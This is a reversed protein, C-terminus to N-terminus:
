CGVVGQGCTPNIQSTLPFVQRVSFLIRSQLAGKFSSLRDILGTLEKQSWLSKFAQKFSQWKRNDQGEVKLTDLRKVIEEAIEAAKDCIQEFTYDVVTEEDDSPEM